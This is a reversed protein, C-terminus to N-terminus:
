VTVTLSSMRSFNRARSDHTQTTPSSVTSSPSASTFTGLSFAALPLRGIIRKYVVAIIAAQFVAYEFQAPSFVPRKALIWYLCGPFGRHRCGNQVLGGCVIGIVDFIQAVAVLRQQRSHELRPALPRERRQDLDVAAGPAQGVALGLM